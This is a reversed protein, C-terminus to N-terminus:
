ADVEVAEVAGALDKEPVEILNKAAAHFKSALLALREAITV